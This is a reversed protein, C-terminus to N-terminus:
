ELPLGAAETFRDFLSEMAVEHVVRTMTAPSTAALAAQFQGDTCSVPSAALADAVVLLARRAPTVQAQDGALDALATEDLGAHRLDREALDIAYWARNRRAVAWRVLARDLPDLESPAGGVALSRALRPGAEPFWALLRMWAPVAGPPAVAALLRRAEEEPVLPLRPMRGRARAVGARVEAASAPAPLPPAHVLGDQAATAALVAVQSPTLAYRESTATLYSHVGDPRTLAWGSGGGGPAQPVGIGEKWRNIANNGAVSLVMELVQRPEYHALCAEVDADSVDGPALTIRRALAFAAQEALPFATWDTDLRALDDDTMGVALLKSEQHGLCYQCNNTRSAIWFLRTKFAYDLSLAPDPSEAPQRAAVGGRPPAMGGFGLYGRPPTGALYLARLRTEYSLAQPDDGAAAREEVTPEPLPIREARDKMDELLRKMAPRTAPTPRPLDDAAAASLAAPGVALAPERISTAREPDAIVEPQRGCGAALASVALGTAVVWRKM